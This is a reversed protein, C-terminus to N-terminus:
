TTFGHSLVNRIELIHKDMRKRIAAKMEQNKLSYIIPNFLPTVVTYLLSLIKKTNSSQGRSPSVYVAILTGYYTCVVALHSSCTSFAKQRGTASPIKLIAIAICVYTSIIFLTEVVTEPTAIGFVAMELISTDSCSLEVIPAFDCFFHDIVNPGCFYLNSMLIVIILAIMFGLAWCWGVIHFCFSSNMTTSYHLPKCIALYRDYSMVTLLLCEIILTVSCAYFQIICGSVSITGGSNLIVHLMIPAVSTTFTVECLSLHSLFFYMPSHLHSTTSVLIIILLNGALTAGYTMLLVIFLPIRSSELGLFGLLFFQKITTQNLRLTIKVDARQCRCGGVSMASHKTNNQLTEYQEQSSCNM